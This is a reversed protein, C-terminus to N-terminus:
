SRVQNFVHHAYDVVTGPPSKDIVQIPSLLDAGAKVLKDIQYLLFSGKLFLLFLHSPHLQLLFVRYDLGLASISSCMQFFKLFNFLTFNRSLDLVLYETYALYWIM